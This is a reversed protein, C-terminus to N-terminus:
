NLFLTLKEKQEDTMPVSKKANYDYHIMVTNGSCALEGSQFLRHEIVMSSNGIKSLFTEITVDEGFEVPRLYEISNKAIILNWKSLDLTPNFIRFLPIRAQEFWELFTANNIHALGDLECFRPEIKLELKQTM